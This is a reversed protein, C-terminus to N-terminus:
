IFRQRYRVRSSGGLQCSGGYNSFCMKIRNGLLLTKNARLGEDTLSSISKSKKNSKPASHSLDSASRRSTLARKMGHAFRTAYALRKGVNEAEESDSDYENEEDRDSEDFGDKGGDASSDPSPFKSSSVHSPFKVNTRPAPNHDLHALAETVELDFDIPDSEDSSSTHVVAKSLDLSVADSEQSPDLAAIKNGQV